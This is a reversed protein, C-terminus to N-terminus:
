TLKLLKRELEDIDMAVDSIIEIRSDMTEDLEVASLEGDSVNIGVIGEETIMALKIRIGNIAKVFQVLGQLEFEYSVDFVWGYSFYGEGQNAQRYIGTEDYSIDTVVEQNEGPFLLGLNNKSLLSPAQVSATASMRAPSIDRKKELASLLTKPLPAEDSYAEVLCDEIELKAIYENMAALEDGHYSDAKSALILDSVQLQQNFSEHHIYREDSLKRADVLTICTNLAISQKFHPESLMDLIAKPHGLGTPEILLRDPKAKMLLQNVAVQLPVGAACCICGGAVEKIQINQQGTQNLLSADLGIQGFENVLVAWVQDEPKNALLRKILSTKGSGLFGTIINTPVAKLIM